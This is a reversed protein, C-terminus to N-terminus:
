EKVEKAGLWNNSGLYCQDEFLKCIEDMEDNSIRINHSELIKICTKVGDKFKLLNDACFYDNIRKRQVETM